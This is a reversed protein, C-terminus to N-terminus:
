KRKSKRALLETSSLAYDSTPEHQKNIANHLTRSPTKRAPPLESARSSLRGDDDAASPGDRPNLLKKLDVQM